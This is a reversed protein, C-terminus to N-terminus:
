NEVFNFYFRPNHQFELSGKKGDSKRTVVCFPAAFGLVTFDQQLEVTNWVKGYREEAEKRGPAANSNIEHTMQMRIEETGDTKMTVKRERKYAPHGPLPVGLIRNQKLRKM